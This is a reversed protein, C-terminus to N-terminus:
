RKAIRLPMGDQARLISRVPADRVLREVEPDIV